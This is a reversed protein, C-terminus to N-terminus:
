TYTGVVVYRFMYTPNLRLSDCYSEGTSLVHLQNCDNFLPLSRNEWAMVM